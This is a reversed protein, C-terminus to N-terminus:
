NQDYYSADPLVRWYRGGSNLEAIAKERVRLPLSSKINIDGAQVFNFYQRRTFAEKTLPLHLGAYGYRQFYRDLSIIDEKTPRIEYVSYRNYGYSSLNVSPTFLVTPATVTSKLYNVSAANRERNRAREELEYRAAAEERNLRQAQEEYMRNQNQFAGAVIGSAGAAIAGGYNGTVFNGFIGGITGTINGLRAQLYATESRQETLDMGALQYGRNLEAETQNQSLRAVEFGRTLANWASGSAGEMVIQSSNWQTGEVAFSYQLPSKKIHKFRAYPKGIPSQDSWQWIKVTEDEGDYLQDPTETDMNGSNQNILVFERFM